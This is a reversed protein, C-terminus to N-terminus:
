IPREFCMLRPHTNANMPKLLRQVDIESVILSRLRKLHSRCHEHHQLIGAASGGGCPGQDPGLHRRHPSQWKALLYGLSRWPPLPMSNQNLSSRAAEVMLVLLQKLKSFSGVYVVPLSNLIRNYSKVARAIEFHSQFDIEVILRETDDDNKIIDIYEHDGGPVNKGNGKWKSVCVAANYGSLRLLKVLYFRLCSAAKCPSSIHLDTEKVISLILSNIVSTLEKEYEGDEGSHKYFSISDALHSLDSLGAEGDSNNRSDTSSNSGNELFDRVMVSLDHESDQSYGGIQGGVIRLWTDGTATTCVECNM